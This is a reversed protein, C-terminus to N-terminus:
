HPERHLCMSLSQQSTAIRHKWTTRYITGTRNRSRLILPQPYPIPSLPLTSTLTIILSLTLTTLTPTRAPGPIPIPELCPRPNAEVGSTAITEAQAVHSGTDGAEGICVDTPPAMQSATTQTLQSPLEQSPFSPAEPKSPKPHEWKQQWQEQQQSDRQRQQGLVQATLQDAEAMRAMFAEYNTVSGGKSRESGSEREMTEALPQM